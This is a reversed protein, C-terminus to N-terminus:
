RQTKEWGAAPEHETCLEQCMGLFSCKVEQVAGNECLTITCASSSIITHATLRHLPETRRESAYISFSPECKVCHLRWVLSNGKHPFCHCSQWTTDNFWSKFVTNLLHDRKLERWAAKWKLFILINHLLHGCRGVRKPQAPCHQLAVPSCHPTTM